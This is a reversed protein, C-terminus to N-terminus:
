TDSLLHIWIALFGWKTIEDLTLWQLYIKRAAELDGIGPLAKDLGVGFLYADLTDFADVREVVTEFEESGNTFVLVDGKKLKRWKPTGKRGEVPKKKARILSFWPDLCHM